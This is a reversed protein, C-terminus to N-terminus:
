RKWVKYGLYIGNMNFAYYNESSARGWNIKTLNLTLQQFKSHETSQVPRASNDGLIGPTQITEWPSDLQRGSRGCCSINESFSM